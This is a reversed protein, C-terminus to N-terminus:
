WGRGYISIAVKGNNEVIKIRRAFLRLYARPQTKRFRSEFSVGYVFVKHCVFYKKRSPINVAWVKGGANNIHDIHIWVPVKRKFKM